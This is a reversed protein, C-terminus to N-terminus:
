LDPKLWNRSRDCFYGFGNTLREGSKGLNPEDRRPEVQSTEEVAAVAGAVVGPSAGVVVVVAQRRPAAPPAEVRWHQQPRKGQLRPQQRLQLRPSLRLQAVALRALDLGIM